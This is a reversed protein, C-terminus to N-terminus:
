KRSKTCKDVIFPLLPLCMYSLTRGLSLLSRKQEWLESHSLWLYSPTTRLLKQGLCRQVCQIPVASSATQGKFHRTCNSVNDRENGHLEKPLDFLVRYKHLWIQDTAWITISNCEQHELLSFHQTHIQLYLHESLSCRM